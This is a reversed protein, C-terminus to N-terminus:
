FIFNLFNFILYICQYPFGYIGNALNTINTSM